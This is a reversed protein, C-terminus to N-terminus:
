RKADEERRARWKAVVERWGDDIRRRKSAETEVIFVGPRVMMGVEMCQNEREVYAHAYWRVIFLPLLEAIWNV